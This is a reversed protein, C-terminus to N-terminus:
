MNFKHAKWAAKMEKRAGKMEEKMKKMQMKLMLKTMWHYMHPPIDQDPNAQESTNSPTKGDWQYLAEKMWHHLGPNM